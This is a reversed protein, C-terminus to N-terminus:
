PFVQHKCLLGKCVPVCIHSLVRGRDLGRGGLGGVGGTVGV